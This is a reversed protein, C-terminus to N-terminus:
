VTIFTIVKEVDHWLTDLHTKFLAIEADKPGFAVQSSTSAGTTTVPQQQSVQSISTM